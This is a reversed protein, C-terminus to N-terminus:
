PGGVRQLSEDLLEPSPLFYHPDERVVLGGPPERTGEQGLRVPDGLVPRGSMGHFHEELLEELRESIGTGYPCQAATHLISDSGATDLVSPPSTM